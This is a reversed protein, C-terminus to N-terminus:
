RESRNLDIGLVKPAIGLSKSAPHKSVFALREAHDSTAEPKDYEKGCCLCRASHGHVRLLRIDRAVRKTIGLGEALVERQALEPLRSLEEALRLSLEGSMVLTRLEPIAATSITALRETMGTPYSGFHASLMARTLPLFSAANRGAGTVDAGTTTNTV